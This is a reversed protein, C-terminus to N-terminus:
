RKWFPRKRPRTLATLAEILRPWLSLPAPSSKLEELLSALDPLSFSELRTVLDSLHRLRDEAPADTLDKLRSLELELLPTVDPAPPPPLPAGTIPVHFTPPTPAGGFAGPAGSPAPGSPAAPAAPASGPRPRARLFAARPTGGPAPSFPAAAMMPAAAPLATPASERQWGQPVEVPQTVQHPTDGSTVIRSDIAVFATFRCLVGHKLSTAVLRQELEDSPRVTYSDELDRLHARAWITTTAPHAVVRGTLTRRWEDSGAASPAETTGPADTQVAQADASSPTGHPQASPSGTRASPTPRADTPLAAAQGDDRQHTTDAPLLVPQSAPRVATLTLPAQSGRYRGSLVLPVGPFLSPPRSPTLTGPLIELGAAPHLAIRTLVPAAIRHHIHEMAADLRDESEVLECRGQGHAALRGLFGANVAQDIGVTHVRIGNLASPSLAALIQDENGVQGDTVLVVVRDRAPDALLEVARTLPALIETGGRAHLIALHEVARFRNRDGAEVLEPPLGEPHEVVHDFSLVAFRDHAQLSDVIRAAARRAAIMKWGEMSGSRDIALVVDKPLAPGAQGPVLTLTFTGEGGEDGVSDPVFVLSEVLGTGAGGVFGSRRDAESDANENSTSHRPVDPGVGEVSGSDQPVDSGADEASASHQATGPAPTPPAYPLRLIFDRDLREGPALRLAGDEATVTHLSSAVPGLPLGAPDIDATISLAVPNPFGPLLIPPTIRSADPVATTDPIVGSGASPGGLPDGPIYRPAVVLPFRFTAAGDEYPLPQDLTLRVTVREGPLINGVRMTFVDPRDEEAIAARRGSAIAQDYEERAAAREKLEATVVRGDAEMRLATVAARDPLPFVYTADLPKEFPNRFGQAVKVRAALGTIAAHVDLADLPLNGEATALAGFGAEPVPSSDMPM